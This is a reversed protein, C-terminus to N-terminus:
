LAVTVLAMVNDYTGNRYRLANTVTLSSYAISAAVHNRTRMMVARVCLALCCNPAVPLTNARAHSM